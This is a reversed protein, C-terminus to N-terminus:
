KLPGPSVRDDVRCHRTELEQRLRPSVMGSIAVLSPSGAKNEAQVAEIFREAGPMWAAYDWQLAIIATGDKAFCIPFDGVLAIRELPTADKHLNSMLAATQVFIADAETSSSQGALRVFARRNAVGNLSELNLM